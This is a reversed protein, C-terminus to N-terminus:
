WFEGVCLPYVGDGDPIAGYVMEFYAGWPTGSLEASSKFEPWNTALCRGAAPTPGPPHPNPPCTLPRGVAEAREFVATGNGSGRPGLELELEAVTSPNADAMTGSVWGGVLWQQNWCGNCEWSQVPTGKRVEGGYLDMCRTADSISDQLYLTQANNDFGWKQQPLGNCPWIILRNGSTFDHADVCMPSASPDGGNGGYVLAGSSPDFVWQQNPLGNCDWAQVLTGPTTDAGDLDLCTKYSWTPRITTGWLVDFQQQPLGNCGWVQLNNGGGIPSYADLCLSADTLSDKLYITGENWDYGWQQQPLGNCEWLFVQSGEQMNKGADLCLGPNAAYQIKWAGADFLFLQNTHGNCEWVDLLTGPNPAGGGPNDLCYAGNQNRVSITRPVEGSFQISPFRGGMFLQSGAAFPQSGGNATRTTENDDDRSTRWRSDVPAGLVSQLFMATKLARM